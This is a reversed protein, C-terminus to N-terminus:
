VGVGLGGGELTTVVVLALEVVISVPESTVGTGPESPSSSVSSSSQV